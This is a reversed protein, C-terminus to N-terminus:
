RLTTKASPLSLALSAISPISAVIPPINSGSLLQNTTQFHKSCKKHSEMYQSDDDWSAKVNKLPTPIGGVLYSKLLVFHSKVQGVISVM